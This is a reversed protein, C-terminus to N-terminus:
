ERGGDALPYPALTRNERELVKNLSLGSARYRIMRATLEAIVAAAEVPPTGGSHINSIVTRESELTQGTPRYVAYCSMSESQGLGPREGILMIVVDCGLAEGIVDEAKVRGHRLFFPESVTFNMTKLGKLLPPLIEEYNRLLAETSLGDSLVIVVQSPQPYRQKLKRISEPSLSRGLDPRTLHTLKDEAESNLSWLGNKELWADPVEKSVTDKSRAQDALFRLYSLTIPRPGAKGAAVRARTVGMFELLAGSNAPNNVCPRKRAEDSGLDVLAPAPEPGGTPAAPGDGQAGAIERTLVETVIRAIRAIYEEQM